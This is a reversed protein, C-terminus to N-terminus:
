AIVSLSGAVAGDSANVLQIPLALRDGVHLWAPVVPDAYLALRSDFPHVAGSQRGSRDHALALVRWTTLQDPVTIAVDARGDPGTEVLPQWHFAEPFWARLRSEAASQEDDDGKGDGGPPPPAMAEAKERAGGQAPAADEALYGLEMQSAAEEERLPSPASAVDGAMCGSLLLVIARM